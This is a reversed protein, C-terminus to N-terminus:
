LVQCQALILFANKLMALFAIMKLQGISEFRPSCEMVRGGLQVLLADEDIDFTKRLSMEFGSEEIDTRRDLGADEVNRGFEEAHRNLLDM